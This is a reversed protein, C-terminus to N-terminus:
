VVDYFWNLYYWYHALSENFYISHFIFEQKNKLVKKNVVYNWMHGMHAKEYNKIDKTNYETYFFSIFYSFFLTQGFTQSPSDTYM